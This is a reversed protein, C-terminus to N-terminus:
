NLNNQPAQFGGGGEERGRETEMPVIASAPLYRHAAVAVGIQRGKQRLSGRATKVALM